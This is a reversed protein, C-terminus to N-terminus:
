ARPVNFEITSHLAQPVVVDAVSARAADEAGWAEVRAAARDAAQPDTALFDVGRADGCTRWNSREERQLDFTLSRETAHTM